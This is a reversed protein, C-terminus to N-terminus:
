AKPENKDGKASAVGGRPGVCIMLSRSSCLVEMLYLLAAAKPLLYRLNALRVVTRAKALGLPSNAFTLITFELKTLLGFMSLFLYSYGFSM